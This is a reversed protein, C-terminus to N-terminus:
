LYINSVQLLEKITKKLREFTFRFDEEIENKLIKGFLLVQSEEASFTKIANIISVAWEIILNKLGYKYNLYTYMHQEMTEKPMKNEISIKDFNTKSSYIEDIIELLMKKTLVKAGSPSIVVSTSPINPKNNSVQVQKNSSLNVNQNYSNESNNVNNNVGPVNNVLSKTHQFLKNTIIKNEEELRNIKSLSADEIDKYHDLAMNKQDIEEKMQAVLSEYYKITEEKRELTVELDRLKGENVKSEVENNSKSSKKNQYSNVQILMKRNIEELDYIAKNKLETIKILTNSLSNNNDIKVIVDNFFNFVKLKSNLIKTGYIFNPVSADLYENITEIERNLLNQFQQSFDSFFTSGSEELRLQITNFLQQFNELEHDLSINDVDSDEIDIDFSNSPKTPKGNLYKLNPLCQLVLLAEEQKDISIKLNSLKPITTLSQVVQNFDKIPNNILDIEVLRKLFSLDHPLKTLSNNSM